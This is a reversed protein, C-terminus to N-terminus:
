GVARHHRLWWRGDPQVVVALVDVRLRAFPRGQMEMWRGAAARIRQLKAADVATEPNGFRVGTRTKVEVAVLVAGWRALLDLEGWACSWNRELLWMGQRRLYRAALEEGCRGLTAPDSPVIRHM